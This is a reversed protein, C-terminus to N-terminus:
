PSHSKRTKSATAKANTSATGAHTHGTVRHWWGDLKSMMGQHSHSKTRTPHQDREDERHGRSRQHHSAATEEGSTQSGPASVNAAPPTASATASPGTLVAANERTLGDEDAPNSQHSTNNVPAPATASVDCPGAAVFCFLAVVIGAARATLRNSRWAFLDRKPQPDGPAFRQRCMTVPSGMEPSLAFSNSPRCHHTLILQRAM